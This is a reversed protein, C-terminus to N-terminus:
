PEVQQVMWSEGPLKEAWPKGAVRASLQRNQKFCQM